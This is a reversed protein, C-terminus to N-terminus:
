SKSYMAISRMTHTKKGSVKLKFAIGEKVGVIDIRQGARGYPDIPFEIRYRQKCISRVEEQWMKTIKSALWTKDGVSLADDYRWEHNHLSIISRLVIDTHIM